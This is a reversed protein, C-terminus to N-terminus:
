APCTGTPTAIDRALYYISVGVLILGLVGIEEGGFPLATVAAGLVGPLAATVLLSGCAACGVGLLGGVIGSVSTTGAAGSKTSSRTRLAYVFLALNIGVLLSLLLTVTASFVTFNTTISGYLNMVITFQQMATMTDAGIVQTVLSWNPIIITSATFILFAVFLSIGIYAPQKLVHAIANLKSM